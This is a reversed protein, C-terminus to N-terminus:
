QDRRETDLKKQDVHANIASLEPRDELIAIIGEADLDAASYDEILRRILELDDPTDLTVRFRSADKPRVIDRTFVNTRGAYLYPTVHEREAPLQAYKHAELLADASFVEFDFGRPYTRKLVNSVYLRPERLEVFTNIGLRVLNGDILPCDSTVRVVVDLGFKEVAGVYRALVDGESGRFAEVGIGQSVEVVRDDAANRTTAVYVPLNAHLLRCLHHHLMSTGGAELLVKGPLRTSTMRAQTVVGIRTM